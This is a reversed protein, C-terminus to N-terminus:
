HSCRGNRWVTLRRGTEDFERGDTERQSARRSELHPVSGSGFACARSCPSRMLSSNQWLAMSTQWDLGLSRKRDMIWRSAVDPGDGLSGLEALRQRGAALLHSRGWGRWPRNEGRTRQAAGLTELATSGDLGNCTSGRETMGGDISACTRHLQATSCIFLPNLHNQDGAAAAAVSKNGPGSVDVRMGDYGCAVLPKCSGQCGGLWLWDPYGGPSRPCVIAFQAQSAALNAVERSSAESATFNPPKEDWHSMDEWKQNDVIPDSVACPPLLSSLRPTMSLSGGNLKRAPADDQPEKM